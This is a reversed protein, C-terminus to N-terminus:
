LEERLQGNIAELKTILDDFHRQRKKIGIPKLYFLAFAMCLATVAYLTIGNVIKMHTFPQILFLTLGTSLLAFYINTMVTDLFASKRNITILQNLYELNSIGPNTKFLVPILQNYAVLYSIYAILMLAAGIKSVLWENVIINNAYITIVITALLVINLLILKFRFIRKLKEAKMVVQEIDPKADIPQKNWLAKFNMETSM